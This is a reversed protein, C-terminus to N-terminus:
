HDYLEKTLGRDKLTLHEPATIAQNPGKCCSVGMYSLHDSVSYEYFPVSNSCSSDEGNSASCVKYGSSTQWVETTEHQFNFAGPPLHVVIDDNHTMRMYQGVQANAFRAFVSDGVRPEGFNRVVVKDYGYNVILDTACLSSAAAGLSHGTTYITATPYKKVLVQLASTVQKQLALYFTYFGSAVGGSGGGFPTQSKYFQLNLIWNQLSSSGRFSIVIENFQPNYGIFGFADTASDYLTSYTQFTSVASTYKCYACTWPKLSGTLYASYSYLLFRYAEAQNFATLTSNSEESYTVTQNLDPQGFVAYNMPKASVVTAAGVLLAVVGLM